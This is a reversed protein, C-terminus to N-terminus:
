RTQSITLQIVREGIEEAHMTENMTTFLIPQNVTAVRSRVSSQNSPNGTMM